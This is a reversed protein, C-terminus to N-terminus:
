ENVILVTKSNKLISSAITLIYLGSPCFQNYKDRGDWSVSQFGSIMQGDFITNILRGNLHYVSVRVHSDLHLFFSLRTETGHGGGQPSFVRPQANVAGSQQIDAIGACNATDRVTYRGLSQIPASLTLMNEPLHKLTGGLRRCEHYIALPGSPNEIAPFTFTLTAPKLLSVASSGELLIQYAFLEGKKLSDEPVCKVYLSTGEGFSLPPLSLSIIIPQLGNCGSTDPPFTSSSGIDHKHKLFTNKAAVPDENGDQDIAKVHFTHLGEATIPIRALTERTYQWEQDDLKYAYRLRNEPTNHDVGYFQFLVEPKFTIDVPTTIFTEPSEQQRKFRTVGGARTGIWYEKEQERLLLKTVNEDPLGDEPTYTIWQNNNDLVSLGAGTAFWIENREHLFQVDQVNNDRLGEFRTYKGWVGNEFHIAGNGTTGFWISRRKTNITISNVSGTGLFNRAEADTLCSLGRDFRCVGLPTGIWLTKDFDVALALIRNHLLGQITTYSNWTRAQTDYRSLGDETGIWLNKGELALSRVINNILRVETNNGSETLNGLISGEPGLHFVGGGFSGVWLTTDQALALATTNNRPEKIPSFFNRPHWRGERYRAVGRATAIWIQGLQDQTIANIANGALDPQAPNLFKNALSDDNAISFNVWNSLYKVAGKGSGLGFWLVGDDGAVMSLVRNQDLESGTRCRWVMRKPDLSIAGRSIGFWLNGNGDPAIAWITRRACEPTDAQRLQWVSSSDLKHIGDSAGFWISQAKDIFIAHVSCQPQNVDICPRFTTDWQAFRNLKSVNLKSVGNDTGFWINGTTEVAISRVTSDALHPKHSLYTRERKWQLSDWRSYETVTYRFWNTGDFRVAGDNLAGIWLNGINDFKLSLVSLPPAGNQVSYAQWLNRDPDFRIIGSNSTGIWLKRHGDLELARISLVGAVQAIPPAHYRLAYGDFSILGSEDSGLWVLKRDSDYVLAYISNSSLYETFADAHLPAASLIMGTSLFAPLLKKLSM